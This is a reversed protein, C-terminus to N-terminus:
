ASEEVEFLDDLKTLMLLLRIEDNPGRLRVVQRRAAAHRQVLVLAGLGASDVSGTACLDIVLRGDGVPVSDLMEVAERRFASRHELSLAEPAILVKEM